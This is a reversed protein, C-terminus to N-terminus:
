TFPGNLVVVRYNLVAAISVWVLYPVLCASALHSRRWLFVILAAISLWLASVEVLAMDPRQLRFFVLSWMVNCFGNVAFLGVIWQRGRITEDSRWAAMGSVAAGALIVTWIPGFAMDPPKWWPEKLSQYWPGLDTLTGGIAAVAIAALGAVSVAQWRKAAAM